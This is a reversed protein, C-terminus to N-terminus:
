QGCVGRGPADVGPLRFGLAASAETVAKSASAVRVRLGRDTATKFLACLLQLTPADCTEVEALDLTLAGAGGRLDSLVSAIRDRLEDLAELRVAGTFVIEGPKRAGSVHVLAWEVSAFFEQSGWTGVSSKPSPIRSM